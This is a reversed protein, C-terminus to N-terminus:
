AGHISHTSYIVQSRCEFLTFRLRECIQHSQQFAIAKLIDIEPTDARNSTVAKTNLRIRGLYLSSQMIITLRAISLSLSLSRASALSISFAFMNYYIPTVNLNIPHCTLEIM